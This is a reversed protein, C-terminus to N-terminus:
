REKLRITRWTWSEIPGNNTLIMKRFSDDNALAILVTMKTDNGAWFYRFVDVDRRSAMMCSGYRVALRFSAIRPSLLGPMLYTAMKKSRCQLFKLFAEFKRSRVNMMKQVNVNLIKCM